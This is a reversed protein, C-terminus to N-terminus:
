SCVLEIHIICNWIIFVVFAKIRSLNQAVYVLFEVGAIM